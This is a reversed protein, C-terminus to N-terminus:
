ISIKKGMDGLGVCVYLSYVSVLCTALPFFYLLIELMYRQVLVNSDQLALRLSKIQSFPIYLNDPSLTM